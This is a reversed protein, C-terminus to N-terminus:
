CCTNRRCWRASWCGYSAATDRCEGWKPGSDQFCIGTPCDYTCWFHGDADSTNGGGTATKMDSSASTKTAPQSGQEIPEQQITAARGATFGGPQATLELAHQSFPGEAAQDPMDCGVLLALSMVLTAIRKM